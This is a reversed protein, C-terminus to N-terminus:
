RIERYSIGGTKDVTTHPLYYLYIPSLSPYVDYLIFYNYFSVSKQLNGLNKEAVM